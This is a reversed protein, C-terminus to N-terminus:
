KISRNYATQYLELADNAGMKELEGIFTDWYGDIDWEGTLFAGISEKVYSNLNGQIESAAKNEDVSMILRVISEDPVADLSDFISNGYLEWWAVTAKGVDTSMDADMGIAWYLESALIRPGTHMYSRNQPDTESVFSGGNYQYFIPADFEDSRPRIEEKTIGEPLKSEDLDEWYDWDIGQGGYRWTISIDERCYYDLVIFAALPNECDASIVANYKPQNPVYKAEVVGKSNEFGVVYDYRCRSNNFIVTGSSYNTSANYGFEALQRFESSRVIARQAASDNTLITTDIIGEDFFKKIFKLGEKWEDTMYAFELEGNEVNLYYDDWARVFGSMLFQFWKIDSTSGAFAVEDDLGNGNMDGAAKFAKCLEYFGEVTTPMENYGLKAAYEKDIWLKTPVEDTESVTFHPLVWINGEYDKLLGAIDRNIHESGETIYKAYDPNAYYESLEALAGKSAWDLVQMEKFGGNAMIIDPLKDGGNVMVNLKDLYDASAYAEFVLDVGLAEEVMLTTDNTNYDTIRAHDPVAVTLTVGETISRPDFEAAETDKPADTAKTADTAKSADTAKPADTPTTKEGCASLSMIMILSLVVALVRKFSNRKM